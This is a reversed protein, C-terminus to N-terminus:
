PRVAHPELPVVADRFELNIPKRYSTGLNPSTVAVPALRANLERQVVIAEPHAPVRKQATALLQGAKGLSGEKLATKAGAVEEDARDWEALRQQGALARSNGPDYALVDKYAAAAKDRTGSALADSADALLKNTANERARLWDRRYALDGPSLESAKALERVAVPYNQKNLADIGTRHHM